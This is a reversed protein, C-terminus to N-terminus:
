QKAANYAALFDTAPNGVGINQCAQLQQEPTLAQAEDFRVRKNISEAMAAAGTLDSEVYAALENLTDLADPAGDIIQQKVSAAAAAIAQQTKSSSWVSDAGVSNDNIGSAQGSAENIRSQLENLAAVLSSKETTNLQALNGRTDIIGKIDKAIADFIATLREELTYQKDSM